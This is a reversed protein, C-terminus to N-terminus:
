LVMLFLEKLVLRYLDKFLATTVETTFIKNLSTSKPM